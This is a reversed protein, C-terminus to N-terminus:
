RKGSPKRVGGVFMQSRSGKVDRIGEIPTRKRTGCSSGTTTPAVKKEHRMAAIIAKTLDDEYKDLMATVEKRVDEPVFDPFKDKMKM